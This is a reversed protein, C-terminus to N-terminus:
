EAKAAEPDEVLDKEGVAATVPVGNTVSAVPAVTVFGFARCISDVIKEASAVANTGTLMVKIEHTKTQPSLWATDESYKMTATEEGSPAAMVDVSGLALTGAEAVTYMGAIEVNRTKDPSFCGACMAVIALGIVPSMAALAGRIMEGVTLKDENMKEGGQKEHTMIKAIM